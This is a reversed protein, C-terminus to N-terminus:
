AKPKAQTEDSRQCREFWWCMAGFSRLATECSLIGAPIPEDVTAHARQAAYAAEFTRKADDFINDFDLKSQIQRYQNIMSVKHRYWSLAHEKKKALCTLKQEADMRIKELADIEKQYANNLFTVAEEATPSDHIEEPFSTRLKGYGGAVNVEDKIQDEIEVGCAGSFTSGLLAGNTTVNCRPNSWKAPKQIPPWSNPNLGLKQMQGPELDGKHIDHSM